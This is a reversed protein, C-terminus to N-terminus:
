SALAKLWMNPVGARPDLILFLLHNFGTPSVLKDFPEQCKFCLLTAFTLSLSKFTFIPFYLTVYLFVEMFIDVSEQKIGHELKTLKM